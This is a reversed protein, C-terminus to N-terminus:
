TVPRFASLASGTIRVEVSTAKDPDLFVKNTTILQLCEVSSPSFYYPLKTENNITIM